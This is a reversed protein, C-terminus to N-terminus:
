RASAPPISLIAVRPRATVTRSWDRAPMALARISSRTARIAM